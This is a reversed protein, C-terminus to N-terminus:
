VSGRIDHTLGEVSIDTLENGVFADRFRLVHGALEDARVLIIFRCWHKCRLANEANRIFDTM